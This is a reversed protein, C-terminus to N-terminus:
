EFIKWSNEKALIDLKEQIEEKTGWSLDLKKFTEYDNSHIRYYGNCSKEYGAGAIFVAFGNETKYDM